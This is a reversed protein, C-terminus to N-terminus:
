SLVQVGVFQLELLDIEDQDIQMSQRMSQRTSIQASIQIAISAYIV